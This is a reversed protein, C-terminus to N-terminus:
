GPLPANQTFRIPILLLYIKNEYFFIYFFSLREFNGSSKVRETTVALSSNCRTEIEMRVRM